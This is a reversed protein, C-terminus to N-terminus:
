RLAEAPHAPLRTDGAAGSTGRSRPWSRLPLTEAKRRSARAWRSASSASVEAGVDSLLKGVLVDPNKVFPQGLLTV